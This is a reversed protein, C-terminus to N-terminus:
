AFDPRTRKGGHVSPEACWQERVLDLNSLLNRPLELIHWLASDLEKRIPDRYAENAPLLSRSRFENGITQCQQLQSDSLHRADLVNLEPLRSITMRARGQQQRTGAWWFMMLGLTSNAWLLLPWTWQDQHPLVNPWATGGLTKEPTICMALSQSNLRFDRNSHLRSATREWTKVAQERMGSRATGQTDPHVVLFREADAAHRWLAPFEPKGTRPYAEIDFAGRPSSGNIDRDVLGRDAIDALKTVPIPHEEDTRPLALRDQCLRAMFRSLSPDHVGAAGTEHITGM